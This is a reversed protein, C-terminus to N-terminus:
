DELATWGQPFGMLWEVFEATPYEGFEDLVRDTLSGSAAGTQYGDRQNRRLRKISQEMSFQADIEMSATPTPWSSYEKGSIRRVLPRQQYANGNRTTGSKPWIELSQEWEALLCRQCMKWSSTAPDYSGLLDGFNLGYDRDSELSAPVADPRASTRVHSAARLAISQQFTAHAASACTAFSRFM